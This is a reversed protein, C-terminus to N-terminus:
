SAPALHVVGPDRPATTPDAPLRDALRWGKGWVNVILSPAGAVFLKRRLRGIQVDVTRTKESSFWGWVAKMLEEKTFVRHPDGALMLLMQFQKVPLDVEQGSVFVRHAARHISLPGVTIVDLTQRVAESAMVGSEMDGNAVIRWTEEGAARVVVLWNGYRSLRVEIQGAENEVGARSFCGPNIRTVSSKGTSPDM